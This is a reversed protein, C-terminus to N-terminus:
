CPGGWRSTDRCSVRSSDLEALQGAETHDADSALPREVALGDSKRAREVQQQAARTNRLARSRCRSTCRNRDGQSSPSSRGAQAMAAQLWPSFRSRARGSSKFYRRSLGCPGAIACASVAQRGSCRSATNASRQIVLYSTRCSVRAVLRDANWTPPPSHRRNPVLAHRFAPRTLAPPSEASARNRRGRRPHTEGSRGCQKNSVLQQDIL